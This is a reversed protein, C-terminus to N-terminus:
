SSPQRDERRAAVAIQSRRPGHRPQFGVQRRDRDDLRQLGLGARGRGGLLLDQGAPRPPPRDCRDEGPLRALVACEGRRALLEPRQQRVLLVRCRATVGEVGMVGPRREGLRHPIPEGREPEGAAPNQLWSAPRTVEDPQCRQSRRHGADFQVRNGRMDGGRQVRVRLDAVLTEGVGLQRLAREVRRDPVYREALDMEVVGPIVGAATVRDM